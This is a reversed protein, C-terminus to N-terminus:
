EVYFTGDGLAKDIEITLEGFATVVSVIEDVNEDEPRKISERRNRMLLERFSRNNMYVKNPLKGSMEYVVRALQGILVYISNSLDVPVYEYYPYSKNETTKHGCHRCMYTYSNHGLPSYPADTMENNCVDCYLSVKIVKVEETKNMKEGKSHFSLMTVVRVLIEAM